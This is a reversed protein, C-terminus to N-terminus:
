SGNEYIRGDIELDELCYREKQSELYIRYTGRMEEM